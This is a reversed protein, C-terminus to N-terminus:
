VNQIPEMSIENINIRKPSELVWKVTDVIDFLEIKNKDPHKERIKPTDLWGPAIYTIKIGNGDLCLWSLRRSLHKLSVKETPYLESSPRIGTDITSGINIIYGEHKEKVWRNWISELMITQIFNGCSVNNIFVDYKVSMRAIYERVKPEYFDYGLSRSVFDIQFDNIFEKFASALSKKEPNGTCLIKM